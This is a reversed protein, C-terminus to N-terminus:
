WKDVYLKKGFTFRHYIYHKIKKYKIDARDRGPKFIFQQTHTFDKNHSLFPKTDSRKSLITTLAGWRYIRLM